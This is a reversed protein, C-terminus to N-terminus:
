AAAEPIGGPERVYVADIGESNLKDVLKKALTTKGSGDCGEIVIFYGNKM